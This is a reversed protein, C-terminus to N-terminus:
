FISKTGNRSDVCSGEIAIITFGAFDKCFVVSGKVGSKNIEYPNFPVQPMLGAKKMSEGSLDWTYHGHTNLDTGFYYVMM